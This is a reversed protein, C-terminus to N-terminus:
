LQGGRDVGPSGGSSTCVGDRQSDPSCSRPSGASSCSAKREIRSPQAGGTARLERGRRGWLGETPLARSTARPGATWVHELRPRHVVATAASSQILRRLPVPRRRGGLGAVPRTVRALTITAGAAQGGRALGRGTRCTSASCTAWRGTTVAADTGTVGASWRRSQALRSAPAAASRCAAGATTWGCGPRWSTEAAFRGCGTSEPLRSSGVWTRPTCGASAGIVKRAAALRRRVSQRREMAVEAAVQFLPSWRDLMAGHRRLRRADRRRADRYTM